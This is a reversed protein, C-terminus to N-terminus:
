IIGVIRGSDLLVLQNDVSLFDQNAYILKHYSSLNTNNKIDNVFQRYDSDMTDLFTWYQTMQLYTHSM